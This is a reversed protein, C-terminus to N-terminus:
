LNAIVKMAHAVLTLVEDDDKRIRWYADVPRTVQAIGGGEEPLTVGAFGGIIAGGVPDHILSNVGGGFVPIAEGGLIVGGNPESVTGIAYDDAARIVAGGSGTFQLSRTFAIVASGGSVVGGTPEHKIGAAAVADGGLVVGGSGTFSYTQVGGLTVNAAGNLVAGGQPASKVGSTHATVGGAVEGGSGIMRRGSVTSSQGGSVLGGAASYRRGYKAPMGGGSVLGGSPSLIRGAKRAATGGAVTGGLVSRKIGYKKSASGGAVEGGSGTLSFSNGASQKIAAAVIVHTDTNDGAVDITFAGATAAARDVVVWVDLENVRIIGTGNSFTTTGTQNFVLGIILENNETTSDSGSTYPTATDTALTPTYNTDVASATAVGSYQAVGVFLDTTALGYTITVVNSANGTVGFAAWCEVWNQPGAWKGGIKSYSNSATDSVGTIDNNLSTCTFVIICNGATASIADCALSIGAASYKSEANVFAIAM